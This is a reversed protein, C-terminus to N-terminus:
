KVRQSGAGAPEGGRRSVTVILLWEGGSRGRLFFRNDAGRLNASLADDTDDVRLTVEGEWTGAPTRAFRMDLQAPEDRGEIVWSSTARGDAEALTTTQLARRTWGTDVSQLLEAYPADGLDGSRTREERLRGTLRNVLRRGRATRLELVHVVMRVGSVPPPAPDDMYRFEWDDGFVVPHASAFPGFLGCGLVVLAARSGFPSTV